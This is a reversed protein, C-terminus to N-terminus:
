PTPPCGIKRLYNGDYGSTNEYFAAWLYSGDYYWGRLVENRTFGFDVYGSPIDALDIYYVRCDAVNSSQTFGLYLTSNVLYIIPIPYTTYLRPPFAASYTSVSGTGLDISYLNGTLGDVVWANGGYFVPNSLVTAGPLTYSNQHTLTVTSYRRVINSGSTGWISGDGYAKIGISYPSVASGVLTGTSDYKYLKYIAPNGYYWQDDGFHYIYGDPATFPQQARVYSRIITFAYTSIDYYGFRYQPDTVLAWLKGNVIKSGPYFSSSYIGPGTGLYSSFTETTLDFYILKDYYGDAFWLYNNVSDYIPGYIFPDNGSIPPFIFTDAVTTPTCPNTYFGINGVSWPSM